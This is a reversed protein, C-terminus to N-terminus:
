LKILDVGKVLQNPYNILNLKYGQENTFATANPLPNNIDTTALSKIQKNGEDTYIPEIPALLWEGTGKSQKKNNFDETLEASTKAYNVFSLRNLIGDFHIPVSPRLRGLTFSNSNNIISGSINNKLITNTSLTNDIYSSISNADSNGTYVVQIIYRGSQLLPIIFELGLNSNRILFAIGGSSSYGIAIGVNTDDQTSFFYNSFITNDLTIDLFFTFPQQRDWQVFDKGGQATTQSQLYQNVGNFNLAYKDEQKVLLNNLYLM